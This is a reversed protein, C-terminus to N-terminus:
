RTTPWRTSWAPSPKSNRPRSRYPPWSSTPSPMLATVGPNSGPHTDVVVWDTDWDNAWDRLAKAVEEAGVGMAGLTPHGPILQPKGHGRLPRPTRRREFADVLPANTRSEHRYGWQRSASGHDWELDVLVGGLLWALEYAVTTKGVGGKRSHVSVIKTVCDVNSLHTALYASGWPAVDRRNM